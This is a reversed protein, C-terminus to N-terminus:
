KFYPMCRRRSSRASAKKPRIKDRHLLGAAHGILQYPEEAALETAASAITEFRAPNLEPITHRGLARVRACRPDRVLQRCFPTGLAGSASIVLARYGDGPSAMSLSRNM